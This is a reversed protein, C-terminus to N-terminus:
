SGYTRVTCLKERKKRCWSLERSRSSTKRSLHCSSDRSIPARNPSLQPTKHLTASTAFLKNHVSQCMRNEFAKPRPQHLTKGVPSIEHFVVECAHKEGGAARSKGIRYPPFDCPSPCQRSQRNHFPSERCSSSMPSFNPMAITCHIPSTAGADCSIALQPAM